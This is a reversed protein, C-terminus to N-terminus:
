MHNRQHGTHPVDDHATREVHRRTASISVARDLYSCVQCAKLPTSIDDQILVGGPAM